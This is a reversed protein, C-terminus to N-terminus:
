ESLRLIIQETDLRRKELYSKCYVFHTGLRNRRVLRKCNLCCVYTSLYGQRDMNSLVKVAQM